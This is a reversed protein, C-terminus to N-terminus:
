VHLHSAPKNWTSIESQVDEDEQIAQSAADASDYRDADKPDRVDVFCGSIGDGKWHLYMGSEVNGIIVGELEEKRM